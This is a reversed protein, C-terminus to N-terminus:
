RRVVRQYLREAEADAEPRVDEPRSNIRFDTNRQKWEEGGAVIQRAVDAHRKWNASGAPLGCFSLVRALARETRRCLDEYSVVLHRDPNRQAWLATRQMDRSWHSAVVRPPINFLTNPNEEAVRTWSSLVPQRRRAIHIFRADRIYHRIVPIRRVHMPSKEVWCIKGRHEAESDLLTVFAEVTFRARDMNEGTVIGAERLFADFFGRDRGCRQMWLADALRVPVLLRDLPCAFRSSFFHTEPFSAV